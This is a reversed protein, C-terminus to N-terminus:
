LGQGDDPSWSYDLRSENHVSWSADRYSPAAFIRLGSQAMQDVWGDPVAAAYDVVSTVGSKLLEGYAIAAGSLLAEQDARWLGTRDYLATMYLSPNAIEERIARTIPQNTPHCHINVLGPMAMLSLGDIEEDVAGAYGPGVHIFADDRFVVDAGRLYEHRDEDPNWRVVWDANRICTTTM